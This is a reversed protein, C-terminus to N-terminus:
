GSHSLALGRTSPPVISPPSAVLALHQPYNADPM